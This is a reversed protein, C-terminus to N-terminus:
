VERMADRAEALVPAWFIPAEADVADPAADANLYLEGVVLSQALRLKFDRVGNCGIARCFRTVSPESVGARAALTASSDEVALRVDALVAAGVRREARTLTMLRDKILGLIDPVRARADVNLAP